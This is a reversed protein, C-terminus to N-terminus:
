LIVFVFMKTNLIDWGRVQLPNMLFFMFNQKKDQM